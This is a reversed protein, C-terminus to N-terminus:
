ITNTSSSNCSRHSDENYHPLNYKCKLPYHECCGKAAHRTMVSPSITPLPCINLKGFEFEKGCEEGYIRGIYLAMVDKKKHLQDGDKAKNNTNLTYINNGM